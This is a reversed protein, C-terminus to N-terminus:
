DTTLLSYTLRTGIANNGHIGGLAFEAEIAKITEPKLDANGVGNLEYIEWCNRGLTTIEIAAKEEGLWTYYADCGRILRLAYRPEALCLKMQTAIKQLAVPTEIPRLRETGSWPAPVAPHRRLLDGIVARWKKQSITRLKGKLWKPELTVGARRLEGLLWTLAAMSAVPVNPLADDLEPDFARM